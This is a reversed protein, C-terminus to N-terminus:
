IMCRKKKIKEKTDDDDDNHDFSPIIKYNCSINIDNNKYFM